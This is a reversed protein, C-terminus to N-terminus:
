QLRALSDADDIDVLFDPACAITQAHKLLSRAGIDGQLNALQGFQGDRFCAPPLRTTGGLTAVIGNNDLRAAVKRLRAYHSLPVLPMDALCIMLADAGTRMAHSTALAVSSGIGSNAHGNVVIEFGNRRWGAACPHQDTPAIVIHQAAVTHALTRPVHLGLMTGHLPAALKDEAGFRRSQGAALVAITLHLADAM